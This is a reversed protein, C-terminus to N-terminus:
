PFLSLPPICPVTGAQWVEQLVQWMQVVSKQREESLCCSATTTGNNAPLCLPHAFNKLWLLCFRPGFIRGWRAGFVSSCGSLLRGSSTEKQYISALHRERCSLVQDPMKRPVVPRLSLIVMVKSLVVNARSM